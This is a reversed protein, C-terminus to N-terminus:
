VIIICVRGTNPLKGIFVKTALANNTDSYVHVYMTITVLYLTCVHVHVYMTCTCIEVLQQVLSHVCTSCKLWNMSFGEIKHTM